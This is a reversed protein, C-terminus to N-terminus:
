IKWGLKEKLINNIDERIGTDLVERSPNNDRPRINIISDYDIMKSNLDYGGGWLNTQLSGNELLVQEGEFHRDGGITLEGTDIDVVFKIYGDLDESTKKIQEKTANETILILM